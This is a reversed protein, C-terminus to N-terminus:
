PSKGLNADLTASSRASFHSTKDSMLTGSTAAKMLGKPDSEDHQLGVSHGVEHAVVSGVAHGWDDLATLVAKMRADEAATGSGLTYTGDLYKKDAVTLAPSLRSRLGGISATFIGLSGQRANDEKRRNGSDLLSVGLVSGGGGYRGGVSERSHGTGPSGTPKVSSFSIKWSKASVSKGDETRFYKQSTYSLILVKARDSALKDTAADGSRLGKAGMDNSFLTAFLDFDIHWPDTGAEIKFITPDPATGPTPAPTPTPAPAPAPAPASGSTPAFRCEYVGDPVTTPFSIASSVSGRELAKGSKSTVARTIIVRVERDARFGNTPAFAVGTGAADVTVSGAMPSFTGGPNTDRDEFAALSTGAVVTAADVPESVTFTISRTSAAPASAPALATVVFPGSAAPPPTTSGPTTSSSASSGGGGGGGGGCGAALAIAAVGLWESPDRRRSM